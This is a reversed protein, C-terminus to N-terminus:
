GGSKSKTMIFSMLAAGMIARSGLGASDVPIGAWQLLSNISGPDFYVLTNVLAAGAVLLSLRAFNETLFVRPDFQDASAAKLARAFLPFLGGLIFIGIDAFLTM